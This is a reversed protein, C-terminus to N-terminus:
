FKKNNLLGSLLIQKYTRFAEDVSIDNKLLFETNFVSKAAGSMFEISFHPNIDKFFGTQVGENFSKLSFSFLFDIIKDLENQIEPYYKKIDILVIKSASKFFDMILDFFLDIIEMPTKDSCDISAAQKKLRNLLRDTTCKIIENKSKFHIYITKKSIGCQKALMDITVKKLGLESAMNFFQDLINQKVAIKDM